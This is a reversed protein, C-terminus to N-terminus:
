DELEFVVKVGKIVLLRRDVYVKALRRDPLRTKSHLLMQAAYDHVETLKEHVTVRYAPDKHKTSRWFVVIRTDLIQQLTPRGPYSDQGWARENMEVFGLFADRISM